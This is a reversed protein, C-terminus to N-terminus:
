SDKDFFEPDWASWARDATKSPPNARIPYHGFNRTKLDFIVDEPGEYTQVVGGSYTLPAFKPWKSFELILTTFNQKNIRGSSVLSAIKRLTRHLEYQLLILSTNLRWDNLYIPSLYFDFSRHHIHLAILSDAVAQYPAFKARHILDAYLEQMIKELLGSSKWALFFRHCTQHSPYEAPTHRWSSGTRIKWLIGNLLLRSDVPPRGRGHRPPPILSRVKNWQENTLDM